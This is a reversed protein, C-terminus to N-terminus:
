QSLVGHFQERMDQCVRCLGKAVGLVSPRLGMLSFKWQLLENQASHTINVIRNCATCEAYQFNRAISAFVRKRALTTIPVRKESWEYMRTRHSLAEVM